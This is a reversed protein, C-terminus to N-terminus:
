GKLKAYLGNLKTRYMNKITEEDEGLPKVPILDIVEEATLSSAFMTEVAGTVMKAVGDRAASDSLGFSKGLELLTQWQFWLYTPGMAAVIAYAELSEEPVEPCEGLAIFLDMLAAKEATPIESSVVMPNYGKNVISPANPIMRVIKSHGGLLGSLKAISLKPALSVVVSERNLFTKVKELAEAIAPPHLAIFVLDCAAPKTNDALEISVGPVERQLRALVEANNDGAVVKGPMKGARNLATLIIRTVRGGGIFGITNFKM